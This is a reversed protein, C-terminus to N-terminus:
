LAFTAEETTFLLYNVPHQTAGLVVVSPAVSNNEPFFDKICHM